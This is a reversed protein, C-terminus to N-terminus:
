THIGIVKHRRKNSKCYNDNRKEYLDKLFGICIGNSKGYMMKFTRGYDDNRRFTMEEFIIPIDTSNTSNEIIHTCGGFIIIFVLLM